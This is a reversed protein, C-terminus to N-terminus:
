LCLKQDMKRPTKRWNLFRRRLMTRSKKVDEGLLRLMKKKVNKKKVNKKVNDKKKKKRVGLM